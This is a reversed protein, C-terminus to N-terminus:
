RRADHVAAEWAAAKEPTLGLRGQLQKFAQLRGAKASEDAGVGAEAVVRRVVEERSVGWAEALQTLAQATAADLELM